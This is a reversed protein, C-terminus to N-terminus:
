QDSKVKIKVPKAEDNKGMRITLVGADLHAEIQESNVSSPLDILREFSGFPREHCTWTAHEPEVLQHTGKLSLREPSSLTIELDELKLGPLEAELTIFEENECIRVAPYSLAVRRRLPIEDGAGAFALGLQQRFQNMEDWLADASQWPILLSM